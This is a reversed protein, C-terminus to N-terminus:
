KRATAREVLLWPARLAAELPGRSFITGWISCIVISALMFLGVSLFAGSVDDRRLLEENEHLILLHIVYVSLAM